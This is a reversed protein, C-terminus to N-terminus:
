HFIFFHYFLFTLSCDFPTFNTSPADSVLRVRDEAEKEERTRKKNLSLEDDESPVDEGDKM